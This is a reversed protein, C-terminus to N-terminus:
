SGGHWRVDGRNLARLADRPTPFTQDSNRGDSFRGFYWGPEQRIDLLSDAIGVLEIDPTVPILFM